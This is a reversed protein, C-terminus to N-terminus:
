PSMIICAGSASFGATSLPEIVASGAIAIIIVTFRVVSLEHTCAGGPDIYTQM